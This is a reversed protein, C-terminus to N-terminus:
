AGRHDNGTQSEADGISMAHRDLYAVVARVTPRQGTRHLSAVADFVAESRYRRLRQSAEGIISALHVHDRLTKYDIGTVTQVTALSVHQNNTVLLNVARQVTAEQSGQPEVHLWLKHFTGRRDM